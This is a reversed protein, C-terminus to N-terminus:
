VQIGILMRIGTCQVFYFCSHLSGTFVLLSAGDKGKLEQKLLRKAMEAAEGRGQGPFVIGASLWTSRDGVEGPAGWSGSQHRDGQAAGHQTGIPETTPVVVCVGAVPIVTPRNELSQATLLDCVFGFFM